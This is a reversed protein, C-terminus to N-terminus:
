FRRRCTTTNQNYAAATNVFIGIFVMNIYVKAIYNAIYFEVNIKTYDYLKVYHEPRHLEARHLASRNM